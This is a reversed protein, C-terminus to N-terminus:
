TKKGIPKNKKAEKQETKSANEVIKAFIDVKLSAGGVLLGEIGETKLYDKANQDSVSGGYLVKVKEAAKAGYLAKVERRIITAANQADKPIANKGTGIAWVPEYAIVVNELEHSTVNALGSVVQDQIVHAAEGLTRDTATEGVCLIPTIGNRLISQVKTRIDKASEHFIHRRESHGVIAYQVLGRLMAASVEGTFAGEDRWYINQAGLKFQRHNIQLSLPQLALNTPCLVVEVDNHTAIKESLKHVYLSAQHVNLHM